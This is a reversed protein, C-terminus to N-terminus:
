LDPPNKLWTVNQVGLRSLKECMNANIGIPKVKQEYALYKGTELPLYCNATTSEDGGTPVTITTTCSLSLADVSGVPYHFTSCSFKIKTHSPKDEKEYSKSLNSIEKSDTLRLQSYGGPQLDYFSDTQRSYYIYPGMPINFLDGIPNSNIVPGDVKKVPLSFLTGNDNAVLEKELTVTLDKFELKLTNNQSTKTDPNNILIDPKPPVTIARQYKTGLYFGTFPLTIFLILAIAKSFITVTTFPNPKNPSVSSEM